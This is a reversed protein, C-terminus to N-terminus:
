VASNISSEPPLEQQHNQAESEDSRITTLAIETVVTVDTESVTIGVDGDTPYAKQWAQSSSPSPLSSPSPQHESTSRQATPSEYSRDASSVEDHDSKVAQQSTTVSTSSIVGVKGCCKFRESLLQRVSRDFGIVFFHQYILSLHNMKRAEQKSRVM